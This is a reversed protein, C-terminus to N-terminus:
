RHDDRGTESSRRPSACGRSRSGRAKRASSAACGSRWAEAPPRGRDDSGAKVDALMGRVARVLPIAVSRGHSRWSTRRRDRPHRLPRRRRDHHEHNIPSSFRTTPLASAPCASRAAASRTRIASWAARSGASPGSSSSRPSRRSRGTGSLQVGAARIGRGIVRISRIEEQSFAAIVARGRADTVTEAAILAALRDPVLAYDRELVQPEIRAGAVPKGDPDHVEFLARPRHVRGRAALPLGPPLAGRYVPMTAVVSGPRYAWLTGTGIMGPWAGEVPPFELSFRGRRRGHMEARVARSRRRRDRTSYFVRVGEAPKGDPLVLRGSVPIKSPTTEARARATEAPAPGSPRARHSRALDRNPGVGRGPGPPRTRTRRRRLAARDEEPEDADHGQPSGSRPGCRRGLGPEVDRDHRASVSTM